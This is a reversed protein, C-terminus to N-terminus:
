VRIPFNISNKGKKELNVDAGDVFLNQQGEVDEDHDGEKRMSAKMRTAFRDAPNLFNTM